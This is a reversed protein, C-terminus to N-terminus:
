VRPPWFWVARPRRDLVGWRGNAEAVDKREVSGLWLLDGPGDQFIRCNILGASWAAVVIAPCVLSSGPAQDHSAFEVHVIHGITPAPQEAQDAAARTKETAM